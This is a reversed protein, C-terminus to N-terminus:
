GLARRALHGALDAMWADVHDTRYGARQRRFRTSAVEAASLASAASGLERAVRRALADVDEVRYGSSVAGGRAFRVGDPGRGPAALARAQAEAEAPTLPVTRAHDVAARAAEVLRDLYDDVEEQSYGDRLRTPQFTANVVREPLGVPVPGLELATRVERVFRDVEDPDYGEGWRTRTFAPEPPMTRGGPVSAGEGRGEPDPAREGRLTRTASVLVDVYDDVDDQDYGERLRTSRFTVAVLHQELGPAPRGSRLQPLVEALLADVDEPHYGERFRSAQFSPEPVQM